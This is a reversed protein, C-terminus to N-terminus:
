PADINSVQRYADKAALVGATGKRKYSNVKFGAHIQSYM